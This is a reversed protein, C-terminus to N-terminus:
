IPKMANLSAHVPTCCECILSFGVLTCCLLAPGFEAALWGVLQPSLGLLMCKNLRSQNLTSDHCGPLALLCTAYDCPAFTGTSPLLAACSRKPTKTGQYERASCGETCMDFSSDDDSSNVDSFDRVRAPM